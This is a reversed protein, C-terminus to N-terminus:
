NETPILAAAANGQARDRAAYDATDPWSPEGHVFHGNRLRNDVPHDGPAAALVDEVIEIGDFVASTTTSMCFPKM